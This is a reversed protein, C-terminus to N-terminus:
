GCEIVTGVFAPIFREKLKEQLAAMMTFGTCHNAAIFGPNAKEIYALSQERQTAAVPGLHTGGIWGALTTRGTLEMGYNVTNVFGSHACGSIVILGKAGSCYLATDDPICDPCDCGAEDSVVLGTDGKEFGTNRPITGSFWLGPVIELPESSFKWEAGLSSLDEKFFPVGAYRRNEGKVSYRSRFIDPHAYVTIPAKRHRLVQSLGGAHDHHGHSLIIADLEKPHVGLLSLNHVVNGTQGTDMLIRKGATEILLSLGHEALFPGPAGPPISNDMVVTVKM